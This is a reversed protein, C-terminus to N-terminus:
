AQIWSKYCWGYVTADLMVKESFHKVLSCRGLIDLMFADSSHQKERTTNSCVIGSHAVKQGQHSVLLDVETIDVEIVDVQVNGLKSSTIDIELM